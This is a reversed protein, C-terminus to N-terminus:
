PELATRFRPVIEDTSISHMKELGHLPYVRDEM